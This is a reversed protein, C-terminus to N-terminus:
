ADVEMEDKKANRSRDKRSLIAKRDKDLHLKQIVVNSPHVGVQVTQGSVQLPAEAVTCARSVCPRTSQGPDGEGRPHRVEEPLGLPGQGGQGQLYGARGLSRRGQPDPRLPGTPIM